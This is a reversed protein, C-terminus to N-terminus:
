NKNKENCKKCDKCPCKGSKTKTIKAFRGEKWVVVSGFKWCEDDFVPQGALGIDIVIGTALCKVEQADLFHNKVSFKKPTPIHSM